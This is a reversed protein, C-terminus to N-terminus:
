QTYEASKQAIRCRDCLARYASGERIDEDNIASGDECDPRNHYRPDPEELATHYGAWDARAVIGHRILENM